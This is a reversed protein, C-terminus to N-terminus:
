RFWLDKNEFHIILNAQMSFATIRSFDAVLRLARKRLKSAAEFVAASDKTQARSPPPTKVGLHEGDTRTFRFPASSMGMQRMLAEGDKARDLLVEASPKMVMRYESTGALNLFEM